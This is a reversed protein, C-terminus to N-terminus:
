SMVAVSGTSTQPSAQQHISETLKDVKASLGAMQARLEANERELREVNADTSVRQALEAVAAQVNRAALRLRYVYPGQLNKSKDAIKEVTELHVKIFAGLEETPQAKMEKGLDAAKPLKAKSKINSPPISPDFVDDDLVTEKLYLARKSGEPNADGIDQKRARKRAARSLESATSPISAHSSVSMVSCDSEEGGDSVM